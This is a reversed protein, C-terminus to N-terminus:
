VADQPSLQSKKKKPHVFTCRFMPNLEELETKDTFTTSIRYSQMM